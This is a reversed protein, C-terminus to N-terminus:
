HRRDKGPFQDLSDARYSMESAENQWDHSKQPDHEANALAEAVRALNRWLVPDHPALQGARLYHRYAQDFKERRRAPDELAWARQYLIQGLGSHHEPDEPDLAVATEYKEMAEGLAALAGAESEVARSLHFLARGWEAWLGADEPRLGCATKLSEVAARANPLLGGNVAALEEPLEAAELRAQGLLRWIEERGPALAAAREYKEIVASLLLPREQDPSEWGLEQLLRGWFLWVEGDEPEVRAAKELKDLAERWLQRRRFPEREARARNQILVSWGCWPGAQRPYLETARRFKEAAERRLREAEAPDGTLEALDGLVDGWNKLTVLHDGNLRAAQAYKRAAERFLKRRRAASPRTEALEALAYAWNHWNVAAREPEVGECAAAAAYKRATDAWLDGARPGGLEARASLLNAWESYVEEGPALEAARACFAAGEALFAAAKEGGGALEALAALCAGAQLFVRHDGTERGAAARLHGLAELHLAEAARSEEPGCLLGAEYLCRGALLRGQRRGLRAASLFLRAAYRYYTGARGPHHDALRAVAQGFEEHFAGDSDRGRRATEFFDVARGLAELDPAQDGFVALRSLVRGRGQWAPSLAPNLDVARGYKELAERLAPASQGARDELVRAWDALISGDEPALRAAQEYHGAGALGGQSEPPGAGEEEAKERGRVRGLLALAWGLYAQPGPEGPLERGLRKLRLIAKELRPRLAPGDQFGRNLLAELLRRSDDDFAASLREWDLHCATDHPLRRSAAAPWAERRAQRQCRRVYLGLNVLLLAALAWFGPQVWPRDSPLILFFALAALLLITILNSIKGPM